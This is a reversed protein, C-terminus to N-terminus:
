KTVKKLRQKISYAIERLRSPQYAIIDTTFQKQTHRSRICDLFWPFIQRPLGSGNITAFKIKENKRLAYFCEGDFQIHKINIKNKHGLNITDFGDDHTILDDFYWGNISTALHADKKGSKYLAAANMDTFAAIGERKSFINIQEVVFQPDSFLAIVHKCYEKVTQTDMFGRLATNYAMRTFEINNSGLEKQKEFLDEVLLDDSDFMWFKEIGRESAFKHAYFYREYCFKTMDFPLFVDPHNPTSILQYYKRFDELLDSKLDEFFIHSWGCENAVEVNKSDGLLYCDANPNGAKAVTLTDYLYSSFGTHIFVITARSVM